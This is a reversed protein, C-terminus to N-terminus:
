DAAVLADSLDSFDLASGYGIEALLAAARAHTRNVIIINAVGEDKLRRVATRGMKGAGLIAVTKGVLTGLRERALEIAATAVSASAAGIATRTRAEKGATM